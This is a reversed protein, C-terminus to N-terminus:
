RRWRWPLLLDWLARRQRRLRRRVRDRRYEPLDRQAARMEDRTRASNVIELRRELEESDFRGRAFARSLIMAARERSSDSVLLEGRAPRKEPLDDTV